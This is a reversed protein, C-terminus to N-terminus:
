RCRAWPTGDSYQYLASHDISCKALFVYKRLRTRENQTLVKIHGFNGDTFEKRGRKIFIKVGKLESSVSEDEEGTVVLSVM